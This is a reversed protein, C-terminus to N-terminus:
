EQEIWAKFQADIMQKYCDHCMSIGGPSLVSRPQCDEKTLKCKPCTYPPYLPSGTISTTKLEETM